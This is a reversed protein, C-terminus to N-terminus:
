KFVVSRTQAPRLDLVKEPLRRDGHHPSHLWGELGRPEIELPQFQHSLCRQKDGEKKTKPPFAIYLCSHRNWKPNTSWFSLGGSPIPPRPSHTENDTDNECRRKPNDM